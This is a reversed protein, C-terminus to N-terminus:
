AIYDSTAMSTPTPWGSKCPLSSCPKPITTTSRQDGAMLGHVHFLPMVLLSRDAPTLEYTRAINDLSAALNGHSLPVGAVATYHCINIPRRKRHYQCWIFRQAPHSSYHCHDSVAHRHASHCSGQHACIQIGKPRSTTGSTHLFLAVDDPRARDLESQQPAAAIHAKGSKARLM